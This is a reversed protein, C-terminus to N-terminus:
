HGINSCVARCPPLCRFSELHSVLSELRHWLRGTIQAGRRGLGPHLEHASAWSIRIQQGQPGDVGDIAGLDDDNRARSVANQEAVVEQLEMGVDPDDRSTAGVFLCGDQGALRSRPCRGRDLDRLVAGVDGGGDNIRGGLSKLDDTENAPVWEEIAVDAGLGSGHGAGVMIDVDDGTDGPHRCNRLVGTQGEMAMVDLEDTVGGTLSVDRAPSRGPRGVSEDDDVSRGAPDLLDDLMRHGRTAALVLRCGEDAVACRGLLGGVGGGEALQRLGGLGSPQGVGLQNVNGDALDDLSRLAFLKVPVLGLRQEAPPDEDRAGAVM